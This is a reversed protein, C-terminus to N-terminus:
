NVKTLFEERVVLIIRRGARPLFSIRVSACTKECLFLDPTIKLHISVPLCFYLIYINRFHEANASVFLRFCFRFFRNRRLAILLSATSIGELSHVTSFFVSTYFFHAVAERKCLLLLNYKKRTRASEQPAAARWLFLHQVYGNWDSYFSPQVTAFQNTSRLM